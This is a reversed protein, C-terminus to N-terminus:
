VHTPPGIKEVRGDALLAQYQNWTMPPKGTDMQRMSICNVVPCVLSCMNCGVCTDARVTFLNVIGGGAGPLVDVGGSHLTSATDGRVASFEAAPIRDWRISQHCGDECAIYCLGCHICKQQDIQAVIKYNLDLEGWSKIRPASKGVVQAVTAFGKRAMWGQLGSILGDVVRFGYHMVATCVQVSGAGLLLFEASDQWTRIGGIGSIPITVNPDNALAAIMNLAIPKVAPGCYGGHRGLGAVSPKPAFTELDVGMISNVTNIM